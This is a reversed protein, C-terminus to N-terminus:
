AVNKFGDDYLVSGYSEILCKATTVEQSNGIYKKANTGTVKIGMARVKEIYDVPFGQIPLLEMEKLMRMKIDIIGYVAMFYKLEKIEDSDTNYIVIGYYTQDNFEVQALHLPAKDQRAM